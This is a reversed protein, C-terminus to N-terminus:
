VSCALIVIGTQCYTSLKENHCELLLLVATLDCNVLTQDPGIWSWILSAPSRVSHANYQCIAEKAEKSYGKFSLVATDISTEDSASIGVGLKALGTVQLACM